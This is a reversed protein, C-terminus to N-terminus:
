GPPAPPSGAAVRAVPFARVPASAAAALRELARAPDVAARSAGRAVPGDRWPYLAPEHTHFDVDTRERGFLCLWQELDRRVRDCARRELALSERLESLPIGPRDEVRALVQRHLDTAIARTAITDRAARALADVDSWWRRHVLTRRGRFLKVVAVDPRAGLEETLRWAPEYDWSYGRTTVPRGALLDAVSDLESQGQVLLLGTRALAADV